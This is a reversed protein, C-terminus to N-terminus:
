GVSDNQQGVFGRHVTLAYGEGTGPLGQDKETEMTKGEATDYAPVMSHTAKERQSRESLLLCKVKTDNDEYKNQNLNKSNYAKVNKQDWM